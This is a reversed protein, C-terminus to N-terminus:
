CGYVWEPDGAISPQEPAPYEKGTREDFIINSLPVPKEPRSNNGGPMRNGETRAVEDPCAYRDVEDSPYSRQYGKDISRVSVVCGRSDVHNILRFVLLIIIAAVVIVVGTVGVVNMDLNM